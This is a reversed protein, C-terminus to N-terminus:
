EYDVGNYEIRRKGDEDVGAGCSNPVMPCLDRKLMWQHHDSSEIDPKLLFLVSHYIEHKVSYGWTQRKKVEMVAEAPSSYVVRTCTGSKFKSCFRKEHPDPKYVILLVESQKFVKEIETKEINSKQSINECAKNITKSVESRDVGKVKVHEQCRNQFLSDEYTIYPYSCSTLFLMLFVIIYRM